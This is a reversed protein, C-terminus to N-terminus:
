LMSLFAFDCKAVVVPEEEGTGGDHAAGAEGEGKKKKKKREERPQQIITVADRRKREKERERGVSIENERKVCGVKKILLLSLLGARGKKRLM